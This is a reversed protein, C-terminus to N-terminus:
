STGSLSQLWSRIVRGILERGEEPTMTNRPAGGPQRAHRADAGSVDPRNASAGFASRERETAWGRAVVTRGSGTGGADVDIIELIKNLNVWHVEGLGLLGLAEAVNDNSLGLNLLTMPAPGPSVQVKGGVRMILMEVQARVHVTTASVLAHVGSDNEFHGDLAAPHHASDLAAAVGNMSVLVRAASTGIEGLRLTESSQVVFRGDDTSVVSPDGDGFYAALRRLDFDHGRLHARWTM